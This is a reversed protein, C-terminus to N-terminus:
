HCMQKVSIKTYPLVMADALSSAKEFGLVKEVIALAFEMATGPGRSTVLLGDIVVRADVASQDPLAKSFSPFSTAKKGKLFGKPELVVAPSACIAGFIGKSDVQKRLVRTLTDCNCLREAGPMGGPLIIANFELTEVDELLADAVIKVKRSAVIELKKEVSAVVVDFGARRLVDIIIVAEMEEVGDAVPVLVRFAKSADRGKWELSNYEEASPKVKEPRIMLPKSIEDMKEKGYLQEVLSLAFEFCTGPGRSTTAQGDQVVTSGTAEQNALKESFSPHCTAKLGDLLGWTQLAVAPAACVAAFLRKQEAQAQVLKQLAPTDRLREAGPMGGPLVILDYQHSECSAIHTDAVLNVKRSALIQLESEVSAITVDAGARRLVDAVIVAEMEETDNAIPVLVQKPDTLVAMSTIPSPSSSSSSLSFFQFNKGKLRFREETGTFGGCKGLVPNVFLPSKLSTGSIQPFRSQVFITPAIPSDAIGTCTLVHMMQKVAM